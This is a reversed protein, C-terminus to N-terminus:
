TMNRIIDIKSVFLDALSSPALDDLAKYMLVAKTKARQIELPVWDLVGVAELGPTDNSM